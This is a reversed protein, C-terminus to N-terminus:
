SEDNRSGDEFHANRNDYRTEDSVNEQRKEPLEDFIEKLREEVAEHQEEIERARKRRDSIDTEESRLSETAPQRSDACDGTTDHQGKERTLNEAIAFGLLAGALAGGPGFSIGAFGGAIAGGVGAGSSSEHKTTGGDTEVAPRNMSSLELELNNLKRTQLRNQAVVLGILVGLLQTEVSVGLYGTLGFFPSLLMRIPIASAATTALNVVSTSIQNYIWNTVFWVVAAIAFQLLLPLKAYWNKLGYYSHALSDGASDWAERLSQRAEALSYESDTSEADSDNDTM